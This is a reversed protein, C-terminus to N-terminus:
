LSSAHRGGTNSYKTTDNYSHLSHFYALYFIKMEKEKERKIVLRGYKCDMVRQQMCRTGYLTHVEGIKKGCPRTSDVTATFHEGRKTRRLLQQNCDKTRLRNLVGLRDTEPSLHSSFIDSLTAAKPM